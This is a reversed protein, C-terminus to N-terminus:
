SSVKGGVLGHTPYQLSFIAISPSASLSAATRARISRAAPRARRSGAWMLSSATVLIKGASAM